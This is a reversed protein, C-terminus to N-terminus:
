RRKAAQKRAPKKGVPASRPAALAVLLPTQEDGQGFPNDACLRAILGPKELPGAWGLRRTRQDNVSVLACGGLTVFIEEPLTRRLANVIEEAAQDAHKPPAVVSLHAPPCAQERPASVAWARGGLRDSWKHRGLRAALVAGAMRLRGAEDIAVQMTWPDARHLRSQLRSLTRALRAPAIEWIAKARGQAVAVPKAAVALYWPHRMAQRVAKASAFEAVYWAIKEAVRDGALLQETAVIRRQWTQGAANLEAAPAPRSAPIAPARHRGVVTSMWRQLLYQRWLRELEAAPARDLQGLSGLATLDSAGHKPYLLSTVLESRLRQLVESLAPELASTVARVSAHPLTREAMALLEARVAEDSGDLERYPFRLAVGYRSAVRDGLRSLHGGPGRWGMASLLVDVEGGTAKATAWLLYAALSPLPEGLDALYGDVDMEDTFFPLARHRASDAPIPGLLAAVAGSETGPLPNSYVRVARHSERRALAAGLLTATPVGIDAQGAGAVVIGARGEGFAGLLAMRASLRAPRVPVPPHARISWGDHQASVEVIQGPLVRRINEFFTAPVEDCAGTELFRAAISENVGAPVGAALLATPESAVLVAGRSRAYYLPPGDLHRALVLGDPDALVLAYPNPGSLLGGPGQVAYRAALTSLEAIGDVIMAVGDTEYIKPLASRILLRAPGHEAIAEDSGRPSLADSLAQLTQLTTRDTGFSLLAALGAM